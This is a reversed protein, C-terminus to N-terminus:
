RPASGSAEAELDQPRPVACTQDGFRFARDTGESRRATIGNAAGGPYEACGAIVELEVSGGTPLIAGAHLAAACVNSDLAYPGAGWVPGVTLNSPYCHCLRKRPPEPPLVDPCGEQTRQAGVPPPAAPAGAVGARFSQSCDPDSVAPFSVSAGYHGWASSTVGHRVTGLYSACGSGVTFLLLGGTEPVAGAHRAAACLSSDTTYQATGWVNGAASGPACTCTGSSPLSRANYPCPLGNTWDPDKRCGVLLLLLVLRPRV